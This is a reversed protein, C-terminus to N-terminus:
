AVPIDRKNRSSFTEYLSVNMLLLLLFYILDEVPIYSISPISIRIGLNELDNYVVVPRSTLIGNVILLPVLGILYALIFRGLYGVKAIFALYVLLIASMIFTTSTYWKQLNFAAIILLIVAVVLSILKATNKFPDRKIFYGAVFYIFMCCYPVVFFFLWEEIPLSGIFIGVTYKPNFSWVGIRTFFEDWIIFFGATILIAPFVHKWKKYYTIKREFSQALPYVLCGLMLILYLYNDPFV